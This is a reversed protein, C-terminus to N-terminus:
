SSQQLTIIEKVLDKKSKGSISLGLRIAFEHVQSLTYINSGSKFREASLRRLDIEHFIDRQTDSLISTSM